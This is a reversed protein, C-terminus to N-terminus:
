EPKRIKNLTQNVKIVNEMPLGARKLLVEMPMSKMMKMRMEDSMEVAAAIGEKETSRQSMIQGILAKGSKTQM